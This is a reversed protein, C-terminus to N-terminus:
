KSLGGLAVGLFGTVVAFFFFECALVAECTAAVLELGAFLEPAGVVAASWRFFVLALAAAPFFAFARLAEGFAPL